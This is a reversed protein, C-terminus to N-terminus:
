RSKRPLPGGRLAWAILKARKARQADITARRENIWASFMLGDQVALAHQYLEHTKRVNEQLAEAVTHSVPAVPRTFTLFPQTRITQTPCDM